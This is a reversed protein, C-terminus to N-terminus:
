DEAAEFEVHMWTIAFRPADFEALKKCGRAVEEWVDLV